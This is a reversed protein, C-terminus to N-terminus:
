DKQGTALQGCSAKIDQGLSKRVTVTIGDKKLEQFFADIAQQSSPQFGCRNVENFPILNIKVNGIKKVLKALKVAAAKSDNLDKIMIYEFCLYHSRNGLKNLYNICWETLSAFFDATTLPVIRIRTEFDPAHLSVALRVNPWGKDDLLENLTKIIGVTSVTIKDQGVIQHLLFENLATKLNDYNLLPEGMGMVVM